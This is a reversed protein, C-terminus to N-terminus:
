FNENGNREADITETGGLLLVCVLLISAFIPDM